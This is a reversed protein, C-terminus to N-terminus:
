PVPHGRLGPSRPVEDAVHRVAAVILVYLAWANLLHWLFHLGVVRGSITTWRCLELDLTRITLSVALIVGARLLPRAVPSGGAMLVGGILFLALVAPVYAFSGNLCPAGAAATIPLLGPVCPTGRAAALAGIFAAVGAGVGLWSLKLYRRLAFALYAVMFMGIPIVDALQAWRTAITHFTLSGLGILAVLSILGRVAWAANRGRAASGRFELWGWAAALLFAVNSVANLPEALWGPNGGRECYLFMVSGLDM